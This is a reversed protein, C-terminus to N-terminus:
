LVRSQWNRQNCATPSWEDGQSADTEMGCLLIIESLALRSPSSQGATTKPVKGGSARNPGTEEDRSRGLRACDCAPRM